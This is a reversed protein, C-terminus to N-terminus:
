STPIPVPIATSSAAACLDVVEGLATVLDTAAGRLVVWDLPETALADQARDLAQGAEDLSAHADPGVVAKADDVAGSLDAAAARLEDVTAEATVLQGVEGAFALAQATVAACAPQVPVTTAPSVPTAPQTTPEVKASSSCGGIATVACLALILLRPIM